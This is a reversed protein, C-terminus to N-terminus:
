YDIKLANSWASYKDSYKVRANAPSTSPLVNKEITGIKSRYFEYAKLGNFVVLSINNFAIFEPLATNYVPNKINKDLAGVIECSKIVDWLALRNDFLVRKKEDYSFNRYDNVFIEFILKWFVNNPNGYYEGKERSLTSPFTGLILIRSHNCILPKFAHYM